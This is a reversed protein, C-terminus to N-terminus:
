PLSLVSGMQRYSLSFLPVFGKHLARSCTHPSIPPPPFRLSRAALNKITCTYIHTPPQSPPFLPIQLSSRCRILDGYVVPLHNRENFHWVRRATFWAALWSPRKPLIERVCFCWYIDSLSVVAILWPARLRGERRSSPSGDQGRAVKWKDARRWKHLLKISEKKLAWSISKIHWQLSNTHKYKQACSSIHANFHTHTHTHTKASACICHDANIKLASLVSVNILLLHSVKASVSVAGVAVSQTVAVVFALPHESASINNNEYFDGFGVM